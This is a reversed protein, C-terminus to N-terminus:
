YVIGVEEDESFVKYTVLREDHPEVHAHCVNDKVLLEEGLVFLMLLGERPNGVSM